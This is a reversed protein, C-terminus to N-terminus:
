ELRSRTSFRLRVATSPEHLTRARSSGSLCCRASTNQLDQKANATYFLQLARDCENGIEGSKGLYSRALPNIALLRRGRVARASRPNPTPAPSFLFFLFPSGPPRGSPFFSLPSSSATSTVFISSSPRCILLAVIRRLKEREFRSFSGLSHALPFNHLGVTVTM